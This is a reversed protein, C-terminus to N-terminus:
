RNIRTERPMQLQFMAGRFAVEKQADPAGGHIVLLPSNLREAFHWAAALVAVMRPSTTIAAAVRRIGPFLQTMNPTTLFGRLAARLTWFSCRALRDRRSQLTALARFPELLKSWKM